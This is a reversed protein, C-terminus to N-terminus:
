EKVGHVVLLELRPVRYLSICGQCEIVKRSWTPYAPTWCCLRTNYFDYSNSLIDVRYYEFARERAYFGKWYEIM